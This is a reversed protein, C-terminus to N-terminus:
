ADTSRRYWVLFAPYVLDADFFVFERYTGRLKRRDGLVSDYEGFLVSAELQRACPEEDVYLYRGMTCRCLLMARRGQEDTHRAYEDSKTFAEAFYLGRGYMTGTHSGALALKFDGIAIQDASAPLTGHWLLCENLEEHLPGGAARFEQLLQAAPGSSTLLQEDKLSAGPRRGRDKEAIRDRARLYVQWSRLNMVHEVMDVKYHQPVKSGDKRDRTRISQCSKDVLDQLIALLQSHVFHNLSRRSIVNVGKSDKRVMYPQDELEWAAPLRELDLVMAKPGTGTHRALCALVSHYEPFAQAFRCRRARLLVSVLDGPCRTSVAQAAAARWAAAEEGRHLVETATWADPLNLTTRLLRV